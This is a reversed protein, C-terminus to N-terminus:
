HPSSDESPPSRWHSPRPMVRDARPRPPPDGDDPVTPPVVGHWVLRHASLEAGYVFLRGALYFLLLLGIVGGLAGYLESADAMQGSVYTSGFIELAAWGVAALAAGPVLRRWSPGHGMLFLRYAALFMVFDVAVTAAVGAVPALFAAAGTPDLRLVYGVASSAAVGLLALTGVVAMAALQRVKVRWGKVALLDVDFIKFTATQAANTVRLGTLLLSILGVLGISGRNEVIRDLAQAIGTSCDAGGPPCDGLVTGFGPIADTIADAVAAADGAPRGALVFGTISLALVIIPFLSLFGFFGIAAAFQDGADAKHRDQVRMATGVVPLDYLRDEFAM